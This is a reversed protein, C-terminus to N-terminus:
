EFSKEGVNPNYVYNFTYYRGNDANSPDLDKYYSIIEMKAYNGDITKVVIVKGAIPSILHTPPGAYTYWGNGSGTNLAYTDAADQAFNTEAPAELISAFTGTEVTLAADGTRSPEDVLSGIESGGNVLITTGRLAIDWSDDTVSTGTKFSFKVFEGATVPPNATFDTTQPAPLNEVKQAVVPELVVANDDDCSAMFVSVFAIVLISKLNRM